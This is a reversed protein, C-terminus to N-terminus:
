DWGASRLGIPPYQGVEARETAQDPASKLLCRGLPVAFCDWSCTNVQRPPPYSQSSVQGLGRGLKLNGGPLLARPSLPRTVLWPTLATLRPTRGPERGWANDNSDSPQPRCHGKSPAGPARQLRTVPSGFLSLCCPWMQSHSFSSTKLSVAASCLLAATGHKRGKRERRRLSPRATGQRHGSLAQPRVTPGERRGIWVQRAGISSTRSCSCPTGGSLL